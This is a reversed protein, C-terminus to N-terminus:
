FDVNSSSGLYHLFLLALVFFSAQKFQDYWLTSWEKSWFILNTREQEQHYKVGTDEM